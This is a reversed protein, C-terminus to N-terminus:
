WRFAAHGAGGFQSGRYVLGPADGAFGTRGWAIGGRPRVFPFWGLRGSRWGARQEIRGAIGRDHRARGRVRQPLGPIRGWGSRVFVRGAGSRAGVCGGGPLKWEVEFGKGGFRNNGFYGKAGGGFGGHAVGGVWSHPNGLTESWDGSVVGAGIGGFFGFVPSSGIGVVAGNGFRVWPNELKNGLFKTTYKNIWNAAARGFPAGVGGAAVSTGFEKWNFHKRHGGPGMQSVQVVADLGGSILAGELIKVAWGKGLNAFKAFASLAQAAIRKQIQVEMRRVAIQTAMEAAAEEAPATPPFRWAWLIELALAVLSLITMLKAAQVSAGFEEIADSIQDMFRALSDMSQDGSLMQDFLASIKDGGAGEPYASVATRKVDEIEPTLKRLAEGAQKYANAVAWIKDEDGDPWAGGAIWGLWRLEPPLYLSM